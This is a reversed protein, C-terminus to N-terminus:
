VPQAIQPETLPREIALLAKGPLLGRQPQIPLRQGQLKGAGREGLKGDRELSILLTKARDFQEMPELLLVMRQLERQPSLIFHSPQQGSPQRILLSLMPLRWM